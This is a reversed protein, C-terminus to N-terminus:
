KTVKGTPPSTVAETVYGSKKGTVRVTIRKGLQAKALVLTIGTARSIALGNAYWQYTLKVGAPGWKGPKVTLKGGVAAKGSIVPSGAIVWKTGHAETVDLSGAGAAFQASSAPAFTATFKNVGAPVSYDTVTATAAGRGSAKLTASGLDTSGDKFTVTGAPTETVAQGGTTKGTVKATVLLGDSSTATSLTVASTFPAEKVAAGGSPSVTVNLGTTAAINPVGSENTLVVSITDTGAKVKTATYRAVGASNFSAVTDSGNGPNQVVLKGNVSVDIGGKPDAQGITSSAGTVTATATVDASTASGPDQVATVAINVDDVIVTVLGSGTSALDGSGAAPVFHATFDTAGRTDPVAGKWQATGNSGVAVATSGNLPTGSVSDGKYFNFSGTSLSVGAQTKVTASLTVSGPVSTGTLTTATNTESITTTWSSANLEVQLSAAIVNGSSDLVPAVTTGNVCATSMTYVGTGLGAVLASTTSYSHSASSVLVNAYPMQTDAPWPTTESSSPSSFLAYFYYPLAATAGNLGDADEIATANWAGTGKYIYDVLLDGSPCGPLTATFTDTDTYSGSSASLKASYASTLTAANAQAAVGSVILLLAAAVATLAALAARTHWKAITMM